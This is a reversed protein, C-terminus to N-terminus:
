LIRGLKLIATILGANRSKGQKNPDLGQAMVWLWARLASLTKWMLTSIEEGPDEGGKLIAPPLLSLLSRDKKQIRMLEQTRDTFLKSIM